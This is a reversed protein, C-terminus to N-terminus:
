GRPRERSCAKVDQQVEVPVWQDQSVGMIVRLCERDFFVCMFTHVSVFMALIAFATGQDDDDTVLRWKLIKVCLTVKSVQSGESM